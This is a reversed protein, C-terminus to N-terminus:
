QSADKAQPNVILEDLYVWQKGPTISIKIYRADAPKNRQRQETLLLLAQPAIGENVMARLKRPEYFGIANYRKGNIVYNEGDQSTSYILKGDPFEAKGKSTILTNVAISDIPQVQGLDIVLEIPLESPPFRVWATAAADLGGFRGDTLAALSPSEEAPATGTVPKGVAAHTKIQQASDFFQEDFVDLDLDRQPDILRCAKKAFRQAMVRYGPPPFHGDEFSYGGWPNVGRNLDDTDIWDGHPHSEGLRVLVDRMAQGDRKTLWYENIRGVVFNVREVDLDRELQELIALFSDHYVSAWGNSADAEGQMWIYTVSALPRGKVSRTVNAILKDYLAGNREPSPDSVGEPPSWDHVWHKIPQSPWAATTVLVKDEGFVQQVCGRFTEPLPKRMNSQGSLIFLHAPEQAWAPAAAWQLMAVVLLAFMTRHKM